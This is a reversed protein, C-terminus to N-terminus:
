SGLLGQFFTFAICFLAASLLGASDEEPFSVVAWVGAAGHASLMDEVVEDDGSVDLVGAFLGYIVEGDGPAASCGM